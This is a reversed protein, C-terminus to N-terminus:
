RSSGLDLYNINVPLQHQPTPTQWLPDDKGKRLRSRAKPLLPEPSPVERAPSQEWPLSIRLLGPQLYTLVPPLCASLPLRGTAMSHEVSTSILLYARPSQLLFEVWPHPDRTTSSSYSLSDSASVPRSKHDPVSTPNLPVPNDQFAGRLQIVQHALRFFHSLGQAIMAAGEYVHELSIIVRKITTFQHNYLVAQHQSQSLSINIAMMILPMTLCGVITLPLTHHRAYQGFFQLILIQQQISDQLTNRIRDLMEAQGRRYEPHCELLLLEFQSLRIRAAYYYMYVMNAFRNIIPTARNGTLDRRKTSAKWLTLREEIQRITAFIDESACLTLNTGHSTYVLRMMDSLAIALGYHEKLITLLERKSQLTFAHSDIMESALDAEDFSEIELDAPIATVQCRRNLSLCLSRDRLIISWWLRKKLSVDVAQAPALPDDLLQAAQIARGLWESGATPENASAHHSLLIATQAQALLSVEPLINFLAKARNYFCRGADAKGIFGCRLLTDNQVYPCSAFLLAHLLVLPVKRSRGVPENYSIWFASEPLLPLAPQIHLFYQRLFEDLDERQPISLSGKAGLFAAEEPGLFGEEFYVLSCTSWHAQGPFRRAPTAPWNPSAM